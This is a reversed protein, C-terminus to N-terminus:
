SSLPRGDEGVVLCYDARAQFLPTVDYPFADRRVLRGATADALDTDLQWIVRLRRGSADLRVTANPCDGLSPTDGGSRDHRPTESDAIMIPRDRLDGTIDYLYLFGTHCQRGGGLRATVTLFDRPGWFPDYVREVGVTEHNRVMYDYIRGWPKPRAPDALDLVQTHTQSAVYLREGDPDVALDRPVVRTTLSVTTTPRPNDPQTVDYVTIRGRRGDGGGDAVYLLAQSPHATIATPPQTLPVVAEVAPGTERDHRVLLVHPGEGVPGLSRTVTAHTVACGGDPAVVALVTPKTGPLVALGDTGGDCRWEGVPRGGHDMVTVADTGDASVDRDALVQGDRDLRVAGTGSGFVGDRTAATDTPPAAQRGKALVGAPTAVSGLALVTAM